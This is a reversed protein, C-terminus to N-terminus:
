RTLRTWLSALSTAQRSPIRFDLDGNAIRETAEALRQVPQTLGRALYFGFWTASFVILLSILVLLLVYSAKIPSKLFALQKYEEFTRRIEQTKSVLSLPVYYTVVVAGVVPHDKGNGRVPAIGHVLESAGAAQIAGATEGALGKALLEEPLRGRHSPPIREGESSVPPRDAAPHYAVQGLFFEREKGNLFLALDNEYRDEYLQAGQLAEAVQRSHLEASQKFSQYYTQAVELSHALSNEVQVNFWREISDTIFTLTVLFFLVTPVIAFAAFAAVLKTRLKAGFLDRRREFVLKALNRLILFLLTLILVINLNILGFFLLNLGFPFFDRIQYVRSELHFLGAIVIATVIMIVIERRRRRAEPTLEKKPKQNAM